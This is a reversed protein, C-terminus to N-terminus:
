SPEGERTAPDPRPPNPDEDAIQDAPKGDLVGKIQQVLAPLGPNQLLTPAGRVLDLAMSVPLPQEAPEPLPALDDHARAENVNLRGDAVKLGDVEARTKIDARITADINFRMYQSVPLLRSVAREIRVLYPRMDHARNLAKSEDNSYTISGAAADGGIERPDIGFVAAVDSKTLNLLELFKAHSPPIQPFSLDWDSGSVWPEGSAFAKMAARQIKRAPEADIQLRTNKLIAPPIGGGRKVDAYDQASLGASIIAALYMVPSLGMRKGAPVLWPSHVLLNPSVEQGKIYIPSDDGGSWDSAWEVMIPRGYGGVATAKGVANGRTVYGHAIQGLWTELGITDEVNRILEPRNIQVAGKGQGSYFDVPLTSVYDMIHRMAAFYPSFRPATKENVVNPRSPSVDPWEM